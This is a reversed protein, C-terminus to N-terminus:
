GCWTNRLTELTALKVHLLDQKAHHSYVVFGRELFPSCDKNKSIHYAVGGGSCSEATVLTLRNVKCLSGLESIIKNTDM